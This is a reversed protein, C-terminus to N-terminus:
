NPVINAANVPTKAEVPAVKKEKDNFERKKCFSFIRNAVSNYLCFKESAAFVIKFADASIEKIVFCFEARPYKKNSLM